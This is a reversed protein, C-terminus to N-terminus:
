DVGGRRPKGTETRPLDDKFAFRQPVMRPELRRSCERRLDAETVPCDPRLVVYAKIAQGLLVDDVGVVMAQMVGPISTLAREIEAPAVKEGRCKIMDDERGCLYLYGQEDTWGIDGTHLLPSGGFPDPRLAQATLAPRRWYGAMVTDGQIVVEGRQGPGLSRGERDAVWLRTNPIAIGVSEPKRDSDSPPLYTCRKCETLGYMSYVSAAPFMARIWARHPALLASGTSTVMRVSALDFRGREAAMGLLGFLTPVGPLVTVRHREIRRLLEPAWTDPSELVLRAGVGTALLTQYLGYDFSLPLACLVVDDEHLRLYSLISEVAALMNRHTLMVAKPEGTTGSTYILAALDSEVLPSAPGHRGGALAEGVGAGGVLCAAPECDATIFALRDARSQAGVPVAVANAYLAAWFAIVTEPESHAVILVRDGATVGITVLTRALRRARDCLEGYTLPLRPHEIAARGPSRSAVTDLVDTLRYMGGPM